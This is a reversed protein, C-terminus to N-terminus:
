DLVVTRRSADNKFSEVASTNLRQLHALSSRSSDAVPVDRESGEIRRDTLTV